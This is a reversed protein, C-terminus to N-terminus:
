TVAVRIKVEASHGCESTKVWSSIDGLVWRVPPHASALKARSDAVDIIASSRVWIHTSVPQCPRV